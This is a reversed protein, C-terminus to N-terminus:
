FINQLYFGNKSFVQIHATLSHSWPKRSSSRGSCCSQHLLIPARCQVHPTLYIQSPRSLPCTSLPTQLQLVLDPSSTSNHSDDAPLHYTLSLIVLPQTRPESSSDQLVSTNLSWPFPFLGGFSVSFNSFQSLVSYGFSLFDKLSPTATDFAASLHLLHLSLLLWQTQCLSSVTVLTSKLSHFCSLIHTNLLSLNQPSKKAFAPSFPSTDSIPKPNPYVNRLIALNQITM